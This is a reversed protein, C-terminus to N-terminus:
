GNPDILMGNEGTATNGTPRGDPDISMGEQGSVNTMGTNGTPQGHPDILMGEAGWLGRFFTRVEVVFSSFFSESGFRLAGGRPLAHAPLAPLVLLAALVLIRLARRSNRSHM